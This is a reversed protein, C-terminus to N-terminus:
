ESEGMSANDMTHYRYNPQAYVVNPDHQLAAILAQADCQASLHVTYVRQLDNLAADPRSPRPLTPQIETVGCPGLIADLSAIGITPLAGSQRAQEIAAAAEPIFKVLLENPASPSLSSGPSQDAPQLSESSAAVAFLAGILASLLAAVLLKRVGWGWHAAVRAM